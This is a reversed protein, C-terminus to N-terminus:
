ERKSEGDALDSICLSARSVVDSTRVANRSTADSAHPVPAPRGRPEVRPVMDVVHGVRLRRPERRQRLRRRRREAVAKRGGGGQHPLGFGIINVVARQRRRWQDTGRSPALSLRIAAAPGRWRLRCLHGTRQGAAHARAAIQARELEQPWRHGASPARVRGVAATLGARDTSSSRRWCTSAKVAPSRRAPRATTAKGASSQLLSAQM